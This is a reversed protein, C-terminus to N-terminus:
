LDDPEKERGTRLDYYTVNVTNGDGNQIIVPQIVVERVARGAIPSALVRQIILEILPRIIPYTHAGILVEIAGGVMNLDVSLSARHIVDIREGIERELAAKQADIENGHQRIILSIYEPLTIRIGATTTM